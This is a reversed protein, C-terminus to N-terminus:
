ARRVRIRVPGRWGGDPDVVVGGQTIEVAGDRALARAAARAPEMLDRWAPGGVARAVESPCISGARSALLDLIAASLRDTLRDGPSEEDRM